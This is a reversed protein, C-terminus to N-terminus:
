QTSSVADLGRALRLQAEIADLAIRLGTSIGRTFECPSTYETEQAAQIIKKLDELRKPATNDIM